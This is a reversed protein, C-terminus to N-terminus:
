LEGRGWKELNRMQQLRKAGMRHHGNAQKYDYEYLSKLVVSCENCRMNKPYDHLHLQSGYFVPLKIEQGCIECTKVLMKKVKPEYYEYGCNSCHEGDFMNSDCKPCLNDAM